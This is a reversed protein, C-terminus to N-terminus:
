KIWCLQKGALIWQIKSTPSRQYLCSAKLLPWHGMEVGKEQEEEWLASYRHADGGIPQIACYREYADEFIRKWSIGDSEPGRRSSSSANMGSLEIQREQSKIKFTQSTWWKWFEEIDRELREFATRFAEDKTRARKAQLWPDILHSDIN